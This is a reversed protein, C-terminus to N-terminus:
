TRPTKRLEKLPDEIKEPVHIKFGYVRPVYCYVPPNPAYEPYSMLFLHAFTTGFYAGDVQSHRNLKPYYIDKCRPCYLKVTHLRLTDSQGIPLMAQGNCCVRPCRGFEFRAYMEAMLSMGKPSLIYRAHILGYLAEANLEVISAQDDDLKLDPSDLIMELALDFDPVQSRLGVLNFEDLIFQEDVEVFFENGRLGSFWKIWSAMEESDEESYRRSSRGM